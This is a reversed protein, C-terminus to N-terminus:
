PSGVEAIVDFSGDAAEPDNGFDVSAIWLGRQLAPTEQPRLALVDVTRAMGRKLRLTQIELGVIQSEIQRAGEGLGGECVAYLDGAHGVCAGSVCIPALSAALGQCGIANSLFSAVAPTGWQSLLIANLAPLAYPGFPMGMSHDSMTALATGNAGDPWSLTATVGVGPTVHATADFPFSLPGSPTTFTITLPTHTGPADTALVLRSQVGWYLLLTRVTDDLWVLEDYPAVGGASATKIYSNMWGSLEGYLFDPLASQLTALEPVAADAAFGLIAAGPDDVFRQELELADALPGPAAATALVQFQSSVSYVGTLAATPPPATDEGSLGGDLVAPASGADGGDQGGFGDAGASDRKGADVGDAGGDGAGASDRKGADVGDAGGDGVGASDRKGADVGDAAEGAVEGTGASDRGSVGVGDAGGDSRSPGGGSSDIAPPGGDAGGVPVLHVDRVTVQGQSAVISGSWRGRLVTRAFGDVMVWKAGPSTVIGLSGPLPGPLGWEQQKADVTVVLRTIQTRDASVEADVNLVIGADEPSRSCALLALFGLAGRRANV